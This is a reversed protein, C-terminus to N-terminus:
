TKSGSKAVPTRASDLATMIQTITYLFLAALEIQLRGEAEVQWRWGDRRHDGVILTMELYRGFHEGVSPAPISVRLCAGDFGWPFELSRTNETIRMEQCEVERKELAYKLAMLFTEADTMRRKVIGTPRREDVVLAAM